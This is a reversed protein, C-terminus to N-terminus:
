HRAFESRTTESCYLTGISNVPLEKRHLAYEPVRLFFEVYQKRMARAPESFIWGFAPRPDFARHVEVCVPFKHQTQVGKACYMAADADGLLRTVDEFENAAVAARHM